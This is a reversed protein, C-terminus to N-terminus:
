KSKVTFSVENSPARYTGVIKLGANINCEFNNTPKDDEKYLPQSVILDSCLGETTVLSKIDDITTSPPISFERRKHFCGSGNLPDCGRGHIGRNESSSVEKWDAPFQFKTFAKEVDSYNPHDPRLPYVFADIFGVGFLVVLVGVIIVITQVTKSM